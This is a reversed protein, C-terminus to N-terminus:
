YRTRNESQAGYVRRSQGVNTRTWGPQPGPLETPLARVFCFACRTDSFLTLLLNKWVLLGAVQLLPLVWWQLSTYATLSSFHINRLDDLPLVSSENDLFQTRNGRACGYGTPTSDPNYNLFCKLTYM